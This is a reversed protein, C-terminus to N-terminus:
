KLIIKGETQEVTIELTEAIVSLIKQLSENNFTTTLPLNRIESRAIIINTEYAENLVEVLKWLPTRDCVFQKSRYYQHLRDTVTEKLLVSDTSHIGLKEGPRLEVTKEDKTVRVIGTEVVVETTGAISKINFSTGVVSVTIGNVQVIFPKKRDPAVNFFAEGKLNIKRENGRFQKPYTITSNKNLMVSSGDPLLDKRPSAATAVTVPSAPRITLFYYALFATGIVLIAVSAAKVLRPSRNIRIIKAENKNPEEIRQQFRKWADGTNISSPIQIKKSTEWILQFHEFYKKNVPNAQIWDEIALKEAFTLEGLLYKVLQEDNMHYENAIM